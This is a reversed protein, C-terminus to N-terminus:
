LRHPRNFTVVLTSGLREVLVPPPGNGEPEPSTMDDRRQRNEDISHGTLRGRAPHGGTQRHTTCPSTRIAVPSGEGGAIRSVAKVDQSNILTPRAWRGAGAEAPAKGSSGKGRDVVKASSPTGASSTSRSARRWIVM